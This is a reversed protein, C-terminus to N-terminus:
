IKLITTFKIVWKIREAPTSKEKKYDREEEEQKVWYVKPSKSLSCPHMEVPLRM